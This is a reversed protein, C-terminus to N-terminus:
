KGAHSLASLMPIFKMNTEEWEKEPDSDQVIGCGAFFRVEDNKILGSRIAVAFEGNGNANIWGIPAAYWGRDFNEHKQIFKVATDRPYGGVAPTPHLSKLVETRSVGKNIIATIPTYLHQVNTLKKIGPKDPHVVNDSFYNLHDEIADLVIEHEHLDKTSHLLDFELRADESATKGRSTSGALGETLVFNSNFSALREPTSGIFSVTSNQRILFSYCDHYQRRLSHLIHTDRVPRNPKIVLERAIVVKELRGADIEDKARNVVEVWHLHDLEHHQIQTNDSLDAPALRVRYEEVDCIPNIKHLLAEFDTIIEQCSLDTNLAMCLTIICRKGESIIMWEPLTFSASGFQQWTESTNEEFFSFGGLLYVVANPHNIAKIHHVKQLLKKGNSSSLRYRMEGSHQIRQLEGGAAIAFDDVPKEWYYQFDHFDSSQEIAALVDVKAISFSVALFAKEQELASYIENEFDSVQIQHYFSEFLPNSKLTESNKM